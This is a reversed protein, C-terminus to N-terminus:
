YTNKLYVLNQDVINAICNNSLFASVYHRVEAEWFNMGLGTM